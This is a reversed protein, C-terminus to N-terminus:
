LKSGTQSPWRYLHVEWPKFHDTFTGNKLEMTRNEGIVEVQGPADTGAISFTGTAAGEHMPVAFLFTESALRRVTFAIPVDAPDSVVKAASTIAPSSLPPALESIQQNLRTVAQLMEPDELLAAEHFQPKFQHVFYILGQSGHILSMWAECRVQQPTPKRDLAGIRTCELCNWVFKKGASWQVLRQVGRGVFSLNGAVEPSEHNVPYIDFSVIDCGKLYEPYDEPHRSRSGRGYWGDWAVGQGLNLMVPRSPDAARMREYYQIIKQPSIPPGWGKGEGQSQANDPEDGHMWGIITPDKLHAMAFENQECIVRMGSKKLATLQAETPGKWLGVYTNFGAARYQEARRPDQLWVALPFFHPDAPPGMSWAQSPAEAGACLHSISIILMAMFFVARRFGKHQNM